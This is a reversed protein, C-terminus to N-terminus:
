AAPRGPSRPRKGSPPKTAPDKTAEEKWRQAVLRQAEARLTKTRLAFDRIAARGSETKILTEWPESNVPRAFYGPDNIRDQYALRGYEEQIQENFSDWKKALRKHKPRVGEPVLSPDFLILRDTLKEILLDELGYAQFTKLLWTEFNFAISRSRKKQKAVDWAALFLQQRVEQDESGWLEEPWGPSDKTFPKGWLDLLPDDGALLSRPSLGNVAYAIQDAVEPTIKYRDTEIDKLSAVPVGTRKSL